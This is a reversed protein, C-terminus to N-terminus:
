LIETVNIASETANLVIPSYFVSNESRADLPENKMFGIKPYGNVLFDDYLMDDDNSALDYIAIM